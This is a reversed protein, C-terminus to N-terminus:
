SIRSKLKVTQPAIPTGHCIANPITKMEPTTNVMRVKARTRSIITVAMGLVSLSAVAAPMPRKM